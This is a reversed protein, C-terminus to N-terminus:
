DDLAGVKLSSEEIILLADINTTGLRPGGFGIELFNGVYVRLVRALRSVWGLEQEPLLKRVEFSHSFM